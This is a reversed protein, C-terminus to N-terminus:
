PKKDWVLKNCMEADEYDEICTHLLRECQGPDLTDSRCFGRMEELDLGTKPIVRKCVKRGFDAVCQEWPSQKIRGAWEPHGPEGVSVVVEVEHEPYFVVYLDAPKEYRPVELEKVYKEPFIQKRDAEGWEVELKIGPHWAMPLALCCGKAGGGELPSVISGGVATKKGNAIDYLTYKIERDVRYNASDVMVSAIDKNAQGATATDPGSDPSCAGLLLTLLVLLINRARTNM